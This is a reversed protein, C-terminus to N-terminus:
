QDLRWEHNEDPVYCVSRAGYKVLWGHPTALRKVSNDLAGTPIDEWEAKSAVAPVTLGLILLVAILTRM